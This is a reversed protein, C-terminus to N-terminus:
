NINQARSRGLSLVSEGSIEVTKFNYLLYEGWIMVSWTMHGFGSKIVNSYNSRIAVM